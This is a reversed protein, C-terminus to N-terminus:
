GAGQRTDLARTDAIDDFTGPTLYAQLDAILHASTQTFLCAEGQADFEIIALNSVNQGASDANVNSSQGPTTGCPLVQVYGRGTTAVAVLSVIASSDPRGNIVTQSGDVPKATERTDLLRIDDVDDLAGETLYAQIDVIV